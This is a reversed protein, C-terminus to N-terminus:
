AIAQGPFRHIMGIGVFKHIRNQGPHVSLQGLVFFHQLNGHVQLFVLSVFSRVQDRQPVNLSQFQFRAPEGYRRRVPDVVLMHQRQPFGPGLM